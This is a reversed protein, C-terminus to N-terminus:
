KIINIYCNGALQNGCYLMVVYMGDSLGQSPIVVQDITRELQMNRMLQGQTNMLVLRAPDSSCVKYEVIFYDSAPNPHVKLSPQEGNQKELIDRMSISSSKNENFNFFPENFDVAENDILINRSYTGALNDIDALPYLQELQLSDLNSISVTDQQWTQLLSPLYNMDNYDSLEQESLSFNSEIANLEQQMLTYNEDEMYLFALAYKARLTPEADLVAIVSDPSAINVTDTKFCTYLRNFAKNRSNKYASLQMQLAEKSGIINQGSLVQNMMYEPMPEDREDLKNLLQNSKASHPNNVMIDRIMVNPLMDEREISSEIVQESLYPSEQMLDQQVEYGEDPFSSTVETDLAPTDGGDVVANLTTEASTIGSEAMAMKTRETPPDIGGGNDEIRSPCSVPKDFVAQTVEHNNFNIAPIPKLILGAADPHHNYVLGQADSHNMLHVANQSFTNGALANLNNPGFLDADGQNYAIGTNVTVLIPIGNADTIPVVTIDSTNDVFDNCQICLGEDDNVRNEGQAIIGDRLREFTNDYIENYHAENSYIYLGLDGKEGSAPGNFNNDEVHFANCNYLYLGYLTDATTANSPINFTNSTVRPESIGSLFIARNTNNFECHQIDVFPITSSATAYIGYELNTFTTPKFQDCPIYGVTCDHDIYVTSNHSYIGKGAHADGMFPSYTFTCGRIKIGDIGTLSINYDPDAGPAEATADTFECDYFYSRNWHPYDIMRVDRKNNFFIADRAAIVGGSSQPDMVGRENDIIRYTKVACIANKITAGNKLVLTGQNSPPIQPLSRDGCVEIGKWYTQPDATTITGGDVILCAGKSVMIRRDKHMRLEGKLRLTVGPDIVLDHEMARSYNWIASKTIHQRHIFDSRMLDGTFLSRGFTAAILRINVYDIEMETVRVNPFDGYKEWNGNSTNRVYVGADTGAYIRGNTGKQYVLANVPLLPLTGSLNANEFSSGGNTSYYIRYLSDYGTYSIWIEQEDYPSIAIDTLITGDNQGPYVIEEFVGPNISGQTLGRTSKFLHSPLSLNQTGGTILYFYDPNSEAQEAETIQRKWSSPLYDHLNSEIEWVDDWSEDGQTYNVKRKYLQSFGFITSNDDANQIVPFTKTVITKDPSNPLDIPIYNSEDVWIPNTGYSNFAYLKNDGSSTFYQNPQSPNFRAAYGDGGHVTYWKNGSSNALYIQSACDQLGLVYQSKNFDSQDLSWIKACELGEYKYTFNKTSVEFMSVGGHNAIFVKEEALGSGVSVFEIDHIDAHHGDGSYQSEYSFNAGNQSLHLCTRGFLILNPDTPSVEIDLWTASVERGFPDNLHYLQNWNSNQYKYIYICPVIKNSVIDFEEGYIYVYLNDSASECTAINIRQCEFDITSPWNFNTSDTFSQWSAGASDSYFIDTGSAFLEQGNTGPKLEVGRIDYLPSGNGELLQEITPNASFADNVKFVGNSTAIFIENPNSTNIEMERCTGGDPFFDLFNAVDVSQWTYGGDLSRYIGITFIPNIHSWNSSWYVMGMDAYGTAIYMQNGNNPNIVIDAVSSIPLIDTHWIQWSEGDNDSRWLGGFSSAAYLIQNSVGYGPDIALRHIQGVGAAGASGVGYDEFYGPLGNPGINEWNPDFGCIIPDFSM